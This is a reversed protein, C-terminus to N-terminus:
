TAGTLRWLSVKDIACRRAFREHIGDPRRTEADLFDLFFCQRSGLPRRRPL